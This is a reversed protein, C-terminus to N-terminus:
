AVRRTRVILTILAIILVAGIGIIVWLLYSPIPQPVVTQVPVEIIQAPPAPPAPPAPETITIVTPAPAEAPASETTFVGTAWPGGPAAKKKAPEGTIGRVRWYYTTDYSLTESKYFTNAVDVGHSYDIIAFTPDEAVAIEYSIAPDYATWVFTPDTEVGTSGNAPEMLKLPSVVVEAKAVDGVTFSLPEVDGDDSWPSFIPGSVSTRARWYYTTGPMFSAANPSSQSPGIVKALTATTISTYINDFVLGDFDKDTAIQIQIGTVKSTQREITFTVDYANGSAVNLPVSTGEVPATLTPATTAISDTMVVLSNSTDVAWLKNNDPSIKLAQPTAELEETDAKSSWLALPEQGSAAAERLNLARHLVSDTSNSTLVYIIDAVRGIGVVSQTSDIATDGTPARTGWTTTSDAKGRKVTTGTGAYLINNDAYLEDAVVQVFNSAGANVAKTRTYNSGADQSFAVYGDEGGVLVDDNPAVTIMYPTFTDDPSKQSGWTSGANSTKTIGDDDIAYVVDASVVVFDRITDGTGLKYVPVNKWSSEGSDKSVWMNQSTDSKPAIYVVSDDDPAIRIMFNLNSQDKLSLVRSVSGDSLWISVDNGDYTAVYIKSADANVAFDTMTSLSTDILAVDNWAYGDDSSLSFASEDGTTVAAANDTTWGVITVSGGSPPKLTNLREADPSSGADASLWRYVRNPTFDGGLLKDGSLAISGIGGPAGGGWTDFRAQVTDTLRVVGGQAATGTAVSTYAIREGVDNGLYTSPLAIDAVSVGATPATDHSLVIGEDWDSSDFFAISGDWSQQGSTYRFVHFHSATTNGSITTIISDTTFNPSFKVAYLAARNGPTFGTSGSEAAWSQAVAVKITYLEADTGDTGAVAIYRTSGSSIDVDNITAGTAPAGLDTWSSGGNSSYEIESAGTAIVVYDPDDSAVAVSTVNVSAPFSTSSDLNAWTLGGDTSKLLPYTQNTTAVFVTDGNTAMDLLDAQLAELLLNDVFAKLNKTPTDEGFSLDSASAPAAVVMLSALMAVTLGVGLIKSIKKNM